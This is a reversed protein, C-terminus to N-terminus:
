GCFPTTFYGMHSVPEGGMLLHATDGYAQARFYATGPEREETGLVTISSPALFMGQWLAPTSINLLHGLIVDIVGLHAFFILLPEQTEPNEPATPCRYLLGDRTYGYQALVADIGDAVWQAQEAVANGEYPLEGSEFWERRLQGNHALSRQFRTAGTWETPNLLQPERTWDSPLFDWPITPKGTDPHPLLVSFERLWPLEAAQMGLADLTPQATAKARGLPSVYIADAPWHAARQALLAAERFGKETLSDHAYDPEAHRVFILKM